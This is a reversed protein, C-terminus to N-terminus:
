DMLQQSLYVYHRAWRRANAVPDADNSHGGATDEYYLHDHGQDGLRAAFKRAHGPHVRDDRTNTTIYVRPYDVDPRLQQYASYRAIWEAEEPIRPDGYEGIWSAGAPLEHYRLMDILPSEIVAANFLEPHQTISVSTLVGGNSRGYIGLRRPSTIGRRELDRAVAAFDDFAKQRNGDLAAQHWDPGFEGGGRINAQVFVGGRELWLKGMEPKYAPNLSVQFGGYGFLITPNSGDLKMDRPRTIFYPIRTGDTSTAEYQEVVHTSADFKAPASKLETLTTAGVSALSLTPPTLFGQTWVFVQGKSKSSDGLGVAINEPTAVDQRRWGFEGRNEFITLRGAVNDSLSAVVQRDLVRVDGLSQRAAPEYILLAQNSVSLDDRDSRLHNLPISLLSGPKYTLGNFTWAEDNSVILLNGQAGFVSVRDPLALKVTSGDHAMMWTESRFTDLPRTIIVATVRGNKDRYVAPSVGYGGDSADGRYDEVAQALTQGRKLTKVIFPYGSETLSGPGFDTAVLLTDRDLWEIRHKGEPLNFGGGVFRKTTLDFERVVVADKGGDSLNILCRTEDPALCDAGKFVWDRGEAKSLADIDLLTEWQPTATRYSELTTRRWVGKPNTADQWFNGIGDGLFSPSPIRDTATLIAQAEARFTEYRPDGTLVALSKRNEEAVFAMAEAGDVQELALHDDAAAVGAPTLDRPFHPPPADNTSVVVEDSGIEVPTGACAGMLLAPIAASLILQRM